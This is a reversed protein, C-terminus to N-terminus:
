ATVAQSADLEDFEDRRLTVQRGELDPLTFERYAALGVLADAVLDAHANTGPQLGTLTTLRLSLRAIDIM